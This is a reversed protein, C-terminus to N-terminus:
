ILLIARLKLLNNKMYCRTTKEQKTSYVQFFDYVNILLTLQKMLYGAKQTSSFCLHLDAARGYPQDAGQSNAKQQRSVHLIIKITGLNSIELM